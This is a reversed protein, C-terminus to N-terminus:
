CLAAEELYSTTDLDELVELDKLGDIYDEMLPKKVKAEFSLLSEGVILEFKSVLLAGKEEDAPPPEELAQACGRPAELRSM